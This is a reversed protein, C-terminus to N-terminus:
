APKHAVALMTQFQPPESEKEVVSTQIKAFGAGQLMSELEAESFGLWEDAYM